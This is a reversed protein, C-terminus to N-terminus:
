SHLMECDLCTDICDGGEVGFKGASATGTRDEERVRLFRSDSRVIAWLWRYIVRTLERKLCYIWTWLTGSIDEVAVYPANLKQTLAAKLKSPTLMESYESPKSTNPDAMAAFPRSYQFPLKIPRPTTSPVRRLPGHLVFLRVTSRFMQTARPQHQQSQLFFAIFSQLSRDQTM